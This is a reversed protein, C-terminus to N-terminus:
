ITQLYRSCGSSSPNGYQRKIGALKRKQDQIALIQQQLAVHIEKVRGIIWQDWELLKKAGAPSVQGLLGDQSREAYYAIVEDWRGKKASERAAQTLQELRRDVESRDGAM